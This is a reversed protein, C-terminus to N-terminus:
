PSTIATSRSPHPFIIWNDLRGHRNELADLHFRQSDPLDHPSQADLRVCARIPSEAPDDLWPRHDVRSHIFEPLRATSLAPRLEMAIGDRNRPPPPFHEDFCGADMQSPRVLQGARSVPYVMLLLWQPYAKPPVGVLPQWREPRGAALSEFENWLTVWTPEYPLETLTAGTHRLVAKLFPHNWPDVVVGAGLKSDLWSPLDRPLLAGGVSDIVGDFEAIGSNAGHVFVHRLSTLSIVTVLTLDDALRIPGSPHGYHNTENIGLTLFAPPIYRPPTGGKPNKVTSDHFAAFAKEFDSVETHANLLPYAKSTLDFDSLRQGGVRWDHLLNWGLSYTSSDPSALCQELVTRYLSSAFM